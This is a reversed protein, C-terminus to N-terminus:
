KCARFCSKSHDNVMGVAQMFSYCTVPGVFKFGNKKLDKSMKTSEISSSRVPEGLVPASPAFSWIYDSFSGYSNQIVLFKQANNLIAKIKLEHRVIGTNQMLQETSNLLYEVIKQAEFNYFAKRYNERKKLITIWSLGAQMGELTLCEFLHRDEYSPSGWEIDHYAQYIQEDSVWSCRTLTKTEM